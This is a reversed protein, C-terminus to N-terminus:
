LKLSSQYQSQSPAFLCVEFKDLVQLRFPLQILGFVGYVLYTVPLLIFQVITWIPLLIFRVVAWVPLLIFQMMIWLYTLVVLLGHPLKGLSQLLKGVGQLLKVAPGYVIYLGNSVTAFTNSMTEATHVAARQMAFRHALFTHRHGHRRNTAADLVSQHCNSPATGSHPVCPLDPTSYRSMIYVPSARSTPRTRADIPTNLQLVSAPLKLDTRM